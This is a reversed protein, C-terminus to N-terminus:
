YFRNVAPGLMKNDLLFAVIMEFIVFNLSLLIDTRRGPIHVVLFASIFTCCVNCSIKQM